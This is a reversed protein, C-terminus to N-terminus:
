KFLNAWDEVSIGPTEIDGKSYFQHLLIIAEELPQGELKAELQEEPLDTRVAISSAQEPLPTLQVTIDAEEASFLRKLIKIEVGSDTLPFGIPFQDLFERLKFYPKDSM